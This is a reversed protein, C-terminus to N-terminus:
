LKRSQFQENLVDYIKNWQALELSQARASPMIGARTLLKETKLKDLHLGASLSNQLTKRRQSFGAKVIRFYAKPETKPFLPYQRRKLILIQSDVKPPPKFLAAKVELGLSVEWYFQAVVSLLSMSGPGAAVRKAVEKQVLLIAASPPNSSESLTRILYNTLYYPINAVIKYDAPLKNLDFKIIDQQVVELNNSRIKNPLLEALDADLEVAIVRKAHAVLLRTLTGHGPGIELVYDNTALQAADCMARLSTEDDLWHQGLSKKTLLNDDM